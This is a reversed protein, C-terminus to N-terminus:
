SLHLWARSSSSWEPTLSLGSYTEVSVTITLVGQQCSVATVNTIMCHSPGFHNGSDSYQTTGEMSMRSGNPVRHALEKSGLSACLPWTPRYRGFSSLREVGRPLLGVGVSLLLELALPLGECGSKWRFVLLVDPRELASRV